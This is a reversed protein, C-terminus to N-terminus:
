VRKVTFGEQASYIGVVKIYTNDGDGSELMLDPKRTEDVAGNFIRITAARRLTGEVSLHIAGKRKEVGALQFELEQKKEELGNLGGPVSELTEMLKRIQMVEKTNMTEGIVDLHSRLAKFEQTQAALILERMHQTLGPHKRIIKTLRVLELNIQEMTSKEKQDLLTEQQALDKIAEKLTKERAFLRRGFYLTNDGCFLLNKLEINESDITSSTLIGRTKQFAVAKSFLKSDILEDGIVITGNDATLVSQMCQVCAIEGQAAIKSGARVTRAEAHSDTEIEGGDLVNVQVMGRARIRFGGCITDIKMSIPCIFRTGINGTAYDLRQVDLEDTIGLERIEGGVRTMIVVGTKQAKLYYGGEDRLNVMDIGGLLNLEMPKAEAVHIIRGDYTMGPRGQVEPTIFFLKAGKTVIPYKNIERFDIKGNAMLEGPCSEYDFFAEKIAGNRSPEEPVGEIAIDITKRTLILELSIGLRALNEDESEPMALLKKKVNLEGDDPIERTMMKRLLLLIKQGKINLRPFLQLLAKITVPDPFLERNIQFAVRIKNDQKAIAGYLNNELIDAKAQLREAPLPQSPLEPHQQNM